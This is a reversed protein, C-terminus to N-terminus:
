DVLVDDLRSVAVVDSKRVWVKRRNAHIGHMRCDLVYKERSTATDRLDHADVDELVLCDGRDSVLRGLYVYPSSLDLVVLEGELSGWSNKPDSNM